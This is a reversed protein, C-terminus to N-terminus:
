QEMSQLLPSGISQVPSADNFEAKPPSASSALTADTGVLRAENALQIRLSIELLLILFLALGVLGTVVALMKQRRFKGLLRGVTGVVLEAYPMIADTRRHMGEALRMLTARSAITGEVLQRFLRLLEQGQAMIADIRRRVRIVLPVATVPRDLEQDM